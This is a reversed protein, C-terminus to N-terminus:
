LAQNALSIEKNRLHIKDNLCELFIEKNYTIIETIATPYLHFRWIADLNLGLVHAIIIRVINDHTVVLNIGGTRCFKQWWNLVRRQTKRFAEGHPFIVDSPQTLWQKFLRPWCAVVKEKPLGEWDGHDTEIIDPETRFIKAHCHSVVIAATQRTRKLPSTVVATFRVQKFRRALAKAQAFGRLSLDTDYTQGQYIGQANALSEAHRVLYIKGM